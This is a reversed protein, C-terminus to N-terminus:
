PSPVSTLAIRSLITSDVIFSSDPEHNNSTIHQSTFIPQPKAYGKKKKKKKKSREQSLSLSISITRRRTRTREPEPKFKPLKNPKSSLGTRIRIRIKYQSLKIKTIINQQHAIFITIIGSLLGHRSRESHITTWGPYVHYSIKQITWRGM